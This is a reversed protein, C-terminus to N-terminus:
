CDNNAARSYSESVSNSELAPEARGIGMPYTSAIEIRRLVILKKALVVQSKRIDGRMKLFAGVLRDPVTAAVKRGRKQTPEDCKGLLLVIGPGKMALGQGPQAALLSVGEQRFEAIAEPSRWWCFIPVVDDKKKESKAPTAAIRSCLLWWGDERVCTGKACRLQDPWKKDSHVASQKM